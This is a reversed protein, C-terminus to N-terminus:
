LRQEFAQVILKAYQTRGHCAANGTKTGRAHDVTGAQHVERGIQRQHQLEEIPGVTHADRDLADLIENLRPM